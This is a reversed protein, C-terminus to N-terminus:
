KLPPPSYIPSNLNFHIFTLLVALITRTEVEGFSSHIYRGVKLPKLPSIISCGSEVGM